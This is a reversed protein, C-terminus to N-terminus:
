CGAALYTFNKSAMIVGDDSVGMKVCVPLARKIFEPNILLKATGVDEDVKASDKLDGFYTSVELSLLDDKARLEIAQEQHGDLLVAARELMLRLRPPITFMVVGDTVASARERFDYPRASEILRAFLKVGTGTVAVADDATLYLETNVDALKLLAAVFAEPLIVRQGDKLPWGGSDAKAWSITKADTAFAHVEGDEAYLTIGMQDPLVATSSVSILATKLAALLEEGVKVRAGRDVAPVRHVARDISLLSMSLKTRGSKLIMEGDGSATLEIEKSKSNSLMGLLVTGRLGGRLECRFPVQVGLTTDNYATLMEGDFWYFSLEEILNTSSLAPKAVEAAKLMEARNILM